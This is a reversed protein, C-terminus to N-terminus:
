YELIGHAVPLYRLSFYLTDKGCSSRKALLSAIEADPKPKATFTKGKGAVFLEYVIGSAPASSQCD